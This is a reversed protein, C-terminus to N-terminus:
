DVGRVKGFDEMSESAEEESTREKLNEESGETWVESNQMKLWGEALSVMSALSLDDGSEAFPMRLPPLIKETSKLPMQPWDDVDNLALQSPRKALSAFRRTPTASISEADYPMAPSLPDTPSLDIEDDYM